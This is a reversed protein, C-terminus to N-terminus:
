NDRPIYMIKNMKELKEITNELTKDSNTFSNNFLYDTNPRVENKKIQKYILNIKSKINEIKNEETYIQINFNPTETLLSIVNYMLFKRKRKIGSKFHICFIDLLANIIKHTLGGREVAELLFIEWLMWVIDVKFKKEVNGINRNHAFLSNKKEKKCINEFELIWELWYCAEITNRVGKSINYALENIAIFLEKPDDKLYIRTAYNVNDAKLKEPMSSMNFDGKEIKVVSLNHKKGSLAVISIIEAFLIRIKNNNRMKMENDIYGNVLIDKFAQFRLQIYLPLKPNGLHICKTMYLIIIEWLELFHGACIYEGSWYCAQELRSHTLSNLLEKKADSKKFKSFTIGRFDKKNRKDSIESDNM